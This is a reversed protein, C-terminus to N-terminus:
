FKIFYGAMKFTFGFWYFYIKVIQYVNCFDFGVENFPM